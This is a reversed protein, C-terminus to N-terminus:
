FAIEETLAEASKSLTLEGPIEPFHPQTKIWEKITDVDKEIDEMTKGFIKLLATIVDESYQFLANQSM